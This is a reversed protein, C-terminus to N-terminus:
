PDVPVGGVSFQKSRWLLFEVAKDQGHMSEALLQALGRRQLNTGTLGNDFPESEDAFTKFALELEARATEPFPFPSDESILEQGREKLYGNLLRLMLNARLDHRDSRGIAFSFQIKPRVVSALDIVGDEEMNAAATAVASRELSVLDAFLLFAFATMRARVGLDYLGAWSKEGTVALHAALADCSVEEAFQPDYQEGVSALLPAAKGEFMSREVEGFRAGSRRKLYHALEHHLTLDIMLDALHRATEQWIPERRVAAFMPAMLDQEYILTELLLARGILRNKSRLLSEAYFKKYTHRLAAIRRERNAEIGEGQRWLWTLALNYAHSSLVGNSIIFNVGNIQRFATSISHDYLSVYHFTQESLENDLQGAAIERLQFFRAKPVTLKLRAIAADLPMSGM